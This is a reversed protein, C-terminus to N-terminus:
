KNTQKNTQKNTGENTRENRENTRENTQKDRALSGYTRENADNFRVETQQM